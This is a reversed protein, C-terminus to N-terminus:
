LIEIVKKQSTHGSVMEARSPPVGFYEALAKLVAENAKGGIPPEKVSIKFHTADIPVVEQNKARAKVKVYYKMCSKDYVM